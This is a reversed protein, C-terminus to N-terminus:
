LTAAPHPLDHPPPGPPNQPPEEPAPAWLRGGFLASWVRRVGEGAHPADIALPAHLVRPRDRRGGAGGVVRRALGRGASVRRARDCIPLACTQVGTVAVDRIGDEAQFFFLIEVRAVEIIQVIKPLTAAAFVVNNGCGRFCLINCDVSGLDCM